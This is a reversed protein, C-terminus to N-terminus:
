PCKILFQRVPLKKASYNCSCMSNIVVQNSILFGTQFGVPNQKEFPHWKRKILCGVIQYDAKEDLLLLM